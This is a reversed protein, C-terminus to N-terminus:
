LEDDYKHALGRAIYCKKYGELSCCYKEKHKQKKERSRFWLTIRTDETVGECKVYEGKSKNDIVAFPCQELLKNEM